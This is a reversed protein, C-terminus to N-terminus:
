MVGVASGEQRPYLRLDGPHGIQALLRNLFDRRERCNKWELYQRRRRRRGEDGRVQLGALHGSVDRDCASYPNLQLIMSCDSRTEYYFDLVARAISKM